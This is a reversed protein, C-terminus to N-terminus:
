GILQVIVWLVFYAVGVIVVIWALLGIIGFDVQAFHSILVIILSTIFIVGTLPLTIEQKVAGM